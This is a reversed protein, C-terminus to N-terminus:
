PKKAPTTKPYIIDKAKITPTAKPMDAGVPVIWLEYAPEERFGGDIIGIRDSTIGNAVIQAKIRKLAVNAYGRISNRGAYVVVFAYDNIGYLSDTLIKIHDNELDPTLEAFEDVKRAPGVVKVTETFQSQCEAPYGSVWLSATIQRDFSAGTSDISISRTGQGNAIIGASTSWVFTPTVSTDGGNVAVSIGFQEGERVIRNGVGRLEFRPCPASANAAAAAEAKKAEIDKKETGQGSIAVCLAALLVPTLFFVIKRM